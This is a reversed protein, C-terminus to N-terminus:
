AYAHVPGHAVMSVLDVRPSIAEGDVETELLQDEVSQTPRTDKNEEIGNTNENQNDKWRNEL